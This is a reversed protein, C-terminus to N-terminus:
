RPLSCMGPASPAPAPGSRSRPSATRATAISRRRSRCWRSLRRSSWALGLVFAVALELLNGKLAFERFEKLM